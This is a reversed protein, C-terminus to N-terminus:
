AIVKDERLQAIAQSDLGLGQLISDSHQGIDPAPGADQRAYGDIFIPSNVTRTAATNTNNLPVFVDNEIFQKDNVVDNLDGAQVFAIGKSDFLSQWHQWPQSQFIKDFVEALAPANETRAELTAFRPDNLLETQQIAQLLEECGKDPDFIWLLFWRDDQCGYALALANTCKERPRERIQEAGCLEAQLPLAHCWAGTAMLSSHVKSGKGTRERNYLGTVIAGYTALSAPHDGMALISHNPAGGDHRMADMMGSRAWFASRDFAPTNAEDGHEGYGSLHAYILKPNKEKLDEYRLQLKALVKPPFNTVLVDAQNILQLLIEYGASSKIDIALSHKNRSTLQWSYNDNAQPADPVYNIYRYPDGIGPPEIKIVEAGLDGLITAAAPGAVWSGLDIVKLDNFLMDSM